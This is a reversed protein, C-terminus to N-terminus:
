LSINKFLVGFSLNAPLDTQYTLEGSNRAEMPLTLVKPTLIEPYHIAYILQDTTGAERNITLSYALQPLKPNLRIPSTFVIKLQHNQNLGLTASFEIKILGNHASQVFNAADLNQNDLSIILNGFGAPLYLQYYAKYAQAITAPAPVPFSYNYFLTNQIVGNAGIDTRDSQSRHLYANIKAVSFNTENLYVTDNQCIGLQPHCPGASVVGSLGSDVALNELNADPFYLYLDNQSIAKLTSRALPVFPIQKALLKAALTKSLSTIIDIGTNATPNQALTYLNDRDVTQGGPLAVGGNESLFTQYLSLNVAILGDVKVSKFREIFWVVQKGAEKFDADVNSDRFTWNAQNLLQKVPAPPSIAGEVLRDVALSPEAQIDIIKGQDLTLTLLSNIFGGTARLENDDQVLIVYHQLNKNQIIKELIDILPLSAAIQSKLTNIQQNINSDRIYRDLNLPLKAQNLLLQIQSLNDSLNIVNVKIAQTTESGITPEQGILSQYLNESLSYTNIATELVSQGHGLILLYNNTASVLDKAILNGPSVLLHFSFSTIKTLRKATVLKQQSKKTEGSRLSQFSQYTARTSLYIGAFTTTLPILICILTLFFLLLILRKLGRKETQHLPESSLHERHPTIKKLGTTIRHFLKETPPKEKNLPRLTVIKPKASPQDIELLSESDPQETIDQQYTAVIKNLSDSLAVQPLWNLRAQTQVALEHYDDDTSQWNKNLDIDLQSNTKALSKQLQYAIDLDAIPESIVTYTEGLTSNSFLSRIIAKALDKIETLLFVKGGNFSVSIKNTSVATFIEKEFPSIIPLAKQHYLDFTVLLRVNNEPQNLFPDILQRFYDLDRHNANVSSVLIIATKTTPSLTDPLRNLLGGTQERSGSNTDVIYVLYDQKKPEKLYIKLGPQELYPKLENQLAQNNGTLFLRAFNEDPM